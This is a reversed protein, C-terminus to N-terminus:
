SMFDVFYRRIRRCPRNLFVNRNSLCPKKARVAERYHEKDLTSIAIADALKGAAFLATEDLFRREAPIGLLDGQKNLTEPNKDCIATIRVPIRSKKACEGYLGGRQGVGLLVISVEKM